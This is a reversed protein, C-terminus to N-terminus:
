EAAVRKAAAGGAISTMVIDGLAMFDFVPLKTKARIADAVIPFVACELLVARINTHKARLRNLAGMVDEELGAYTVDNAPRCMARWSETGEVGAVAIPSDSMSFGAAECHAPSLRTSDFTLIALTSGPPILSLVFPALLLSSTAVPVDLAASIGKQLISTFGCTTIVARAGQGILEKACRIYDGEVSKDGKTVNEVYASPVMMYRVPYPFSDDRTIAGDLQIPDNNLRLIALPDTTQTRRKLWQRRPTVADMIIRQLTSFDVTPLGTERRVAAAAIPFASCELVLMAIDPHAARLKRAAAVVDRELMAVTCKPDPKVMEVWSESGEIGGVVVPLNKQSWGAGNFHVDGLQKADYTLVGLKKGPPVIRAMFQVLLLSSLAVPISVAAAVEKQFRATFGCNSTIAAIGDKEMARAAAIYAKHIEDDPGIVNKTWAGPVQQYRVPFDYTSPSSIAGPLRVPTHALQLMGLTPETTAM